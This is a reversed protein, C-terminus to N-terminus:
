PPYLRPAVACGIRASASRLGRETKATVLEGTATQVTCDGAVSERNPEVWVLCPEPGDDTGFPALRVTGGKADNVNIRLM